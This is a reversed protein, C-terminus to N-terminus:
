IPNEHTGRSRAGCQMYACSIKGKKEWSKFCNFELVNAALSQNRGEATM